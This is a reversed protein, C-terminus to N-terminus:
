EPQKGNRNKVAEWIADIVAERSKLVDANAFRLVRYGRAELWRTREQDYAFTEPLYHQSGDLEVILKFTPCFFDVIYGGIPQQRRFKLGEDRLRGLVKWLFREHETSNNRLDRARGRNM